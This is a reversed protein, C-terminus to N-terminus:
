IEEVWGEQKAIKVVQSWIPGLIGRTQEIYNEPAEHKLWEQTKSDTTDPSTNFDVIGELAWRLLSCRSYFIKDRDTPHRKYESKENAQTHAAELETWDIKNYLGELTL